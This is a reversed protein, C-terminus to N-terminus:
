LPVKRAECVSSKPLVSVNVDIAYKKKLNMFNIIQLRSLLINYNANQLTINLTINKVM